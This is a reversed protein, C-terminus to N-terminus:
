GYISVSTREKSLESFCTRVVDNEMDPSPPKIVDSASKAPTAFTSSRMRSTCACSASRLAHKAPANSRQSEASIATGARGSESGEEAIDSLARERATSILDSSWFISWAGIGRVTTSEDLKQRPASGPGYANTSRGPIGFTIGAKMFSINKRSISASVLPRSEYKEYIPLVYRNFSNRTSGM